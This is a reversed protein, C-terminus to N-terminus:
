AGLRKWEKSSHPRLVALVEDHIVKCGVCSSSGEVKSSTFLTQGSNVATIVGKELRWHTVGATDALVCVVLGVLATM